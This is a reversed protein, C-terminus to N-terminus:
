KILIINTVPHIEWVTSRWVNSCNICTNTANQKHELDPFLWGEIKVKHGILSRVFVYTLQKNTQRTFRNVECIMKGNGLTDSFVIHIDLDQKEKSHCNCEEPGGWKVETIKGLVKVFQSYTYRATDNGPKLFEGVYKETSQQAIINRNKLGDSLQDSKRKSDGTTPCATQASLSNVFLVILFTITLNITKM